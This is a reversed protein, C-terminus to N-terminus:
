VRVLARRLEQVFARAIDRPTPVSHRVDRVRYPGHSHRAARRLDREAEAYQQAEPHEHTM